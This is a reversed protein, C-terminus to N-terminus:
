VKTVESVLDQAKEFGMMAALRNGKQLQSRSNSPSRLGAMFQQALNKVEPTRNKTTIMLAQVNEASEDLPKAIDIWFAKGQQGITYTGDELNYVDKAWMKARTPNDFTEATYTGLRLSVSNTRTLNDPENRVVDIVSDEM